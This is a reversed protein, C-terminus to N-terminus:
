YVHIFMIGKQPHTTKYFGKKPKNIRFRYYNSTEHVDKIPKLNLLKIMQTAEKLSYMHKNIIVSQLMSNLYM